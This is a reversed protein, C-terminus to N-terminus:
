SIKNWQENQADYLYIKGTNMEILTTGNALPQEEGDVSITTPKSDTSLCRIELEQENKGTLTDTKKYFTIM